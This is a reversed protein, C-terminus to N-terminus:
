EAEQRPIVFLVGGEALSHDLKVPKKDKLDFLRAEGWSMSFEAAQKGSRALKWGKDAKKVLAKGRDESVLFDVVDGIQMKAKKLADLGIRIILRPNGGEKNTYLRVTAEGPKIATAPTGTKGKEAYSIWNM